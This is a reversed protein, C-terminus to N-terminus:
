KTSDLRMRLDILHERLADIASDLQMETEENADDMSTNNKRGNQAEEKGGKTFLALCSASKLLLCERLQTAFKPLVVITVNKERAAEVLHNYLCAPSDRPILLVSVKGKELASAISNSGVIYHKGVRAGAEKIKKLKNLIEDKEELSCASIKYRLVRNLPCKEMSTKVKGPSKM